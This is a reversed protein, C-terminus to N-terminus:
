SDTSENKAVGDVPLDQRVALDARQLQRAVEEVVLLQDLHVAVRLVHLPERRRPSFHVLTTPLCRGGCRQYCFKM